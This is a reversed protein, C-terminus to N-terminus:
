MLQFFCFDTEYVLFFSSFFLGDVDSSRLSLMKNATRCQIRFKYSVILKEECNSCIEIPLKSDKSISLNTNLNYAEAFSVDEEGNKCKIRFSFLNKMSTSEILCCRCVKSM